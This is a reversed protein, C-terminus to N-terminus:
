RPTNVGKGLLYRKIDAIDKKSEKWNSILTKVTGELDDLKKEVSEEEKTDEDEIDDKQIYLTEGIPIWETGENKYNKWVLHEDPTYDIQRKEKLYKIYYVYLWISHDIEKHATFDVNMDEVSSKTNLCVLCTSELKDARELAEDRMEGFTDIIVGFVINLIIINIIIFFTLDFVQKLPFKEEKGYEYPEMSDAVGGGNRLGLNLTYLFCSALTSCVDIEGIDTSDFKDSYYNAALISYSYVMFIAVVFTNCLIRFRKTTANLIYMASSSINVFLLLHITHFWPDILPALIAAVLHVSFNVAPKSNLYTHTFLIRAKTGFGLDKIEGGNNTVYKKFSLKKQIPAKFIIWALFMLFCYGAFIYSSINIFKFWDEAELKRNGKVPNNDLKLLLLCMINIVFGVLWAFLKHIWFVDNKTLNYIFPYRRSLDYNMDMELILLDIFKM